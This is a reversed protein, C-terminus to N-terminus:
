NGTPFAFLTADVPPNIEISTMTITQGGPQGKMSSTMSFPLLLGNSTEQYDSLKTQSVMGKAPGSKVESEVVLPVFNETDFYYFEVNETEVGDVKIPKKTVKVKFTESGDITEKGLLELKHGLAASNFLPLPFDSGLNAKFNETEETDSKEAKMSMQNTGWLISGDFVQQRFEMGQFTASTSQRGDKLQVMVVPLEMGNPLNIKANMKLGTVTEWKAKGGTNELYNKIIDEVTQAKAACSFIILTAALLIKPKM